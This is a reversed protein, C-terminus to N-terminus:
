PACWRWIGPATPRTRERRLLHLHLNRAIAFLYGRVSALDFRYKAGWARIFTESTIDDAVMADGSLFLAFRRVDRAYEDYLTAFDLM